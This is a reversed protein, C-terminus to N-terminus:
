TRCIPIAPTMGSDPSRSPMPVGCRNNYLGQAFNRASKMAFGDDIRFPFSVGLDDAQLKYTGPQVFSSFDVELVRQYQPSEPGGSDPRKQVTITATVPAETAADLLHFGKTPSAGLYASVDMEGPDGNLVDLNGYYYGVMAKKPYPSNGVITGTLYGEQNVHIAPSYRLPSKTCLFRMTSPWDGATSRVEVYDGDNLTAALKLFLSNEIRADTIEKPGYIGRRRFGVRSVPTGSRQVGNVFIQLANAAPLTTTFSEWTHKDTDDQANAVRTLELIDGTIIRMYNTGSPVVALPNGISFNFSARNRTPEITYEDPDLTQGLGPSSPLLTLLILGLFGSM